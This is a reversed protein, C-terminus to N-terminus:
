SEGGLVKLINASTLWATLGLSIDKLEADTYGWTPEDIIFQISASVQANQATLPDAATKKHDVRVLRRRRKGETHGVSFTYAEDATRYVAGQAQRQVLPMSQAVANVTISQPDSFAM